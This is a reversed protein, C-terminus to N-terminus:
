PGKPNDQIYAYDEDKLRPKKTPTPSPKSRPIIGLLLGFLLFGWTSQNDQSM